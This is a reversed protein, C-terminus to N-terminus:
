AAVGNVLIPLWNQLLTPLYCSKLLKVNDVRVPDVSLENSVM